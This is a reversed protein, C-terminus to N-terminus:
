PYRTRLIKAIPETEQNDVNWPWRLVEMGRSWAHDGSEIESLLDLYGRHLKELYELPLGHEASRARKTVRAHAVRPDVDLFIILSPPRLDSAMIEYLRQYTAWELEHINGELMHLRAFVRDGPLGRDLIVGRDGSLAEGVALKQLGYREQMLHLQMPYAWRKQDEYFLRLYPNSDVPEHLVRFNLESGLKDALTTKGSGIIGEIWVIPRM